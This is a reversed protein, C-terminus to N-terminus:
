ISPIKMPMLGGVPLRLWTTGKMRVHFQYLFIRGIAGVDSVGGQTGGSTVIPIKVTTAGSM